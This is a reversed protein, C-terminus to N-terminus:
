AAQPLSVGVGDFEGYLKQRDADSLNMLPPRLVMWGDDDSHRAMLAKLAPPLPYQSIVRRAASLSTNVADVDANDGDARWARWLAGLETSIVNACATICGAGGRRLTPLFLEDSGPFM